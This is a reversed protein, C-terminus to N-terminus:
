PQPRATNSVTMGKCAQASPAPLAQSANPRPSGQQCACLCTLTFRDVCVPVQSVRESGSGREWPLAAGGTHHIFWPPPLRAPATDQALEPAVTQSLATAATGETRSTVAQGEPQLPSARMGDAPAFHWVSDAHGARLFLRPM